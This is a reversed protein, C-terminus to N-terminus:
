GRFVPDNDEGEVPESKPLIHSHAIGNPGIHPLVTYNKIEHEHKVIGSGGLSTKGDGRVKDAIMYDHKHNDDTSTEGALLIPDGVLDTPSNDDQKFDDPNPEEPPELEGEVLIQNSYEVGGFHSKRVENPDLVGSNIHNADTESHIKKTEAIEKETPEWLPNFEIKWDEIIRGNTPGMKSKMTLEVLRNAQKLMQIRQQNKIEDYYLQIDSEGTSNMGGPSRGMFLTMPINYVGAVRQQFEQMLEALGSVSSASKSYTEKADILMTNIVHNSMNLLNMRDKVVQGQGSAVLNQLNEIQLVAQIFDEIISSAASYTSELQGLAGFGKQYLSDNWWDNNERVTDDTLPGDFRLVRSEHVRFQTTPVPELAHIRYFKPKGFKPDTPDEYLDTSSAWTARHRDYVRLGKIEKINDENLPQLLADEGTAGDDILMLVISGGFVNGWTLGAKFTEQACLVDLLFKNIVGDTDNAIDFWNRVMDDIPRNVIKAGFDTRYLNRNEEESLRLSRSVANSSSRDRGEVGWGSFINNWGDVAKQYIKKIKEDNKQLNTKTM